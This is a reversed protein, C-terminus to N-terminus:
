CRRSTVISGTLQSTFDVCTTDHGLFTFIIGVGSEHVTRVPLPFTEQIEKLPQSDGLKAQTWADAIQQHASGAPPPKSPSASANPAAGM